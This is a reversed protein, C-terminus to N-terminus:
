STFICNLLHKSSQVQVGIPSTRLEKTSLLCRLRLGKHSTRFERLFLIFNSILTALRRSSYSPSDSETHSYIWGVVSYIYTVPWDKVLDAWYRYPNTCSSSHSVLAFVFAPRM